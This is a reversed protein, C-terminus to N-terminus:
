DWRPRPGWFAMGASARGGAGLARCRTLLPVADAVTVSVAGARVAPAPEANGPEGAPRVLTHWEPEVGLDPPGGGPTWFAVRGRRPPDAPLFLAEGAALEPLARFLRAREVAVPEAVEEAGAPGAPAGADVGVAWRGSM